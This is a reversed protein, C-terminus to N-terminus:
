GLRAVTLVITTGAEADTGGSPDQAVVLGDEDPDLTEQEVVQVKFGLARLQGRAADLDLGIVDPVVTTAPGASVRLRVTAGERLERGAAPAQGVVTGAPEDSAVETVVPQLGLDRLRSRAATVSMGTLDPATITEVAARGSSIRLTVVTDPGVEAGAVPKQSVVIGKKAGSEVLQVELALGANRLAQGAARASRGRVDPVSLQAPGDSVTLVVASSPSVRGAPPAQELVEGRPRDSASRTVRVEFGRRDLEARASAYTAGVLDPVETEAPKSGPPTSPSPAAPLPSPEGTTTAAAPERDDQSLLAVALLAGALLALLVLGLLVPRAGRDAFPLRQRPGNGHTTSPTAAAPAEYPQELGEPVPWGVDSVVTDAEPDLPTATDAPVPEEPRVAM